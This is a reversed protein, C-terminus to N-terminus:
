RGTEGGSLGDHELPKGEPKTTRGEYEERRAEGGEAM